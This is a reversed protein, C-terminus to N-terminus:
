KPNLIEPVSSLADHPERTEKGDGERRDPDSHNGARDRLDRRQVALELPGRFGLGGRGPVELDLVGVSGGAPVM